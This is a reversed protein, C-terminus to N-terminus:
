YNKEVFIKLAIERGIVLESGRVAIKVPGGMPATRIAKIETNPTLGMDALRKVVKRNGRIFAIIGKKGSPLEKLTILNKLSRGSKKKSKVKLDEICEACSSVPKECLPIVKHDDPCVDPQELVKCLAEEAEDSLGHELKCAQEHVKDPDVKLVDSLFRELLRHKRTMKRALKMGKRTLTIGRYPRYNIYGKRAMNQLMETVSPPSIGLRAALETTKVTGEDRSLNYIAELYEEIHEGADDVM